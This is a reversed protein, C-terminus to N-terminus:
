ARGRGTATESWEALAVRRRMAEPFADFVGQALAQARRNLVLGDLRAQFADIDEGAGRSVGIKTALVDLLRARDRRVRWTAAAVTVLAVVLGAIFGDLFFSM